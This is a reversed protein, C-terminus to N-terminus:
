FWLWPWSRLRNNGLITTLHHDYVLYNRDIVCVALQKARFANSVVCLFTNDVCVGRNIRESGLPLFGLLFRVYCFHEFVAADVKSCQLVVLVHIIHVIEIEDTM